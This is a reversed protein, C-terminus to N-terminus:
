KQTKYCMAFLGIFTSDMKERIFKLIRYVQKKASDPKINLLRGIEDYSLGSNFKLFLLEKNTPTLNTIEQQLLKLKKESDNALLEEEISFILNFKEPNEKISTFRKNEKLKKIIIRKLSKFLYFELLEPQRLKSGYTYIDIFLDQISDKLIDRDSTIKSGYSFLADVFENYITKFADTDGERFKDWVLQWYEKETSKM